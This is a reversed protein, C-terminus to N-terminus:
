GEKKIDNIATYLREIADLLNNKDQETLRVGMSENIELSQKWAEELFGASGKLETKLSELNYVAVNERLCKDADRYKRQTITNQETRCKRHYTPEYDRAEGPNIPKGCIGCIRRGDETATEETPRAVKKGTISNFAFNISRDGSLVANRLEIAKENGKNAEAEIVKVKRITDHSVGAAKAVKDRTRGKEEGQSSNQVPNAKGALMRREAEAAYLPELKFALVSRNYSNLNRRAFQNEIIWIKAADRSEFQRERTPCVLAHKQTINYRNHGDVIVGNWTIIPERVGEDLISRELRQFEDDTLPPILTRFEEDVRVM